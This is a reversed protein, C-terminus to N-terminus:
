GPYGKPDKKRPFTREEQIKGNKLHIRVTGEGGIAKKLVGKKTAVSKKSWSQIVTGSSNKLQWKKKTKSFSLNFRSLPM